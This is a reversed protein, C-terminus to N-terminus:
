ASEKSRQKSGKQKTVRARTQGHWQLGILGALMKLRLAETAGPSDEKKILLRDKENRVRDAKLLDTKYRAATTKKQIIAHFSCHVKSVASLQGNAEGSYQDRNGQRVVLQTITVQATAFHLLINLAFKIIANLFAM